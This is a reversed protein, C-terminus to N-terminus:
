GQFVGEIERLEKMLEGINKVSITQYQHCETLNLQELDFNIKELDCRLKHIDLLCPPDSKVPQSASQKHVYPCDAKKCGGHTEWYCEVAPKEKIQYDSHRYPCADLCETGNKWNSCVIQCNKAEQSHRYTCQPGRACTSTIFYFCDEKM